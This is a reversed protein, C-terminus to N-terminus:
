VRTTSLPIDGASKAGKLSLGSYKHLVCCGPKCHCESRASRCQASEVFFETCNCFVDCRFNSLKKFRSIWFGDLADLSIYFFEFFTSALSEYVNGYPGRPFDFIDQDFYFIFYWY